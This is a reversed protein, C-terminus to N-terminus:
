TRMAFTLCPTANRRDCLGSRFAFPHAVVRRVRRMSICMATVMMLGYNPTRQFKTLRVYAEQPTSVRRLGDWDSVTRTMGSWRQVTEVPMPKPVATACSVSRRDPKCPNDFTNELLQGAVSANELLGLPSVDDAILSPRRSTERSRPFPAIRDSTNSTSALKSIRPRNIDKECPSNSHSISQCGGPISIQPEALSETSAM